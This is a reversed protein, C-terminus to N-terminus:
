EVEMMGSPISTAPYLQIGGFSRFLYALISFLSLFHCSFHSSFFAVYSSIHSSYLQYYSNTAHAVFLIYVIGEEKDFYDHHEKIASTLSFYRSDQQFGKVRRYEERDKIPSKISHLRKMWKAM